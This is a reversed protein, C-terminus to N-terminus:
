GNTDAPMTYVTGATLLTSKWFDDWTEGAAPDQRRAVYGNPFSNSQLTGDISSAEIWDIATEIGLDAAQRASQRFALNGSIINATDVSRTLAAGGIMMGMLVILTVLLVVGAQSSMSYPEGKLM